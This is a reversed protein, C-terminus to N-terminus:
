LITSGVAIPDGSRLRTPKGAPLKAGAVFTGNVGGLDEIEIGTDRVVLKVHERSVGEDNLRVHVSAGRGVLYEKGSPLPITTLDEPGVVALQFEPTALQGRSILDITTSGAGAM